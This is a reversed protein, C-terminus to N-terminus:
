WGVGHILEIDSRDITSLVAIREAGRAIHINGTNSFPVNISPIHNM